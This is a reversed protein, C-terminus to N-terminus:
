LFLNKWNLKQPFIAIFILHVNITYNKCMKINLGSRYTIKAVLVSFSLIESFCFLKFKLIKHEKTNKLNQPM